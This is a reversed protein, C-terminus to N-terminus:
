QSFEPYTSTLIPFHLLSTVTTRSASNESPRGPKSNRSGVPNGKEALSLRKFNQIKRPCGPIKERLVGVATSVVCPTSQQANFTCWSTVMYWKCGTLRSLVTCTNVVTCANKKDGSFTSSELLTYVCDPQCSLWLLLQLFFSQLYSM